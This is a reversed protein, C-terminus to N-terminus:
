QGRVRAVARAVTGSTVRSIVGDGDDVLLAGDDGIGAGVGSVRSGRTEVVLERGLLWDREAWRRAFPRFGDTEFDTFVACLGEVLRAALANREPVRPGLNALEAAQTAWYSDKGPDPRQGLDINLGLGTVVTIRGARSARTETLIGGLKGDGAVLDNPWKLQVGPVGMEDLVEAVGLGIGLTLAALHEPQQAFTYALSLCLGSGPPSRWTRGHRGRGSTQNDTIAVHVRGPAPGPQQMLYSNTSDIEDFADFAELRATVAKGLSGRVAAGDIRTM